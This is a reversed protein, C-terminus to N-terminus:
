YVSMWYLYELCKISYLSGTNHDWAYVIQRDESCFSDLAFKLCMKINDELRRQLREYVRKEKPKQGFKQLCKKDRGHIRCAVGM